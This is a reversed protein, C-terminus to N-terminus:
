ESSGKKEAWWVCKTLAKIEAPADILKLEDIRYTEKTHNGGRLNSLDDMAREYKDDDIWKVHAYTWGDDQAEVKNVVGFRRIGQYNQFVIDDVKM